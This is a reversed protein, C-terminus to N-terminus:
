SRNLNTQLPLNENRKIKFYLGFILIPLLLELAMVAIFLPVPEGVSFLSFLRGVGSLFFILAIFPIYKRNERIGKSVSFCFYGFAVWFISLFRLENDISANIQGQFGPIGGVGRIFLNLGTVLAVIFIMILIIKLISEERTYSNM